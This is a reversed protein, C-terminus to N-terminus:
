RRAVNKRGQAIICLCPRYLTPVPLSPQTACALDLGAIASSHLGDGPCQRQILAALEAQRAALNDDLASPSISSTM